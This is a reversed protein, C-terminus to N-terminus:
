DVCEREVVKWRSFTSLTTSPKKPLKVTSIKGTAGFYYDLATNAKRDVEDVSNGQFCFYPQTTSVALWKGGEVIGVTWKHLVREQRKNM